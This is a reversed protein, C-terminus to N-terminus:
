AWDETDSMRFVLSSRRLAALVSSGKYAAGNSQRIETAELIKLVFRVFPGGETHGARREFADEFVKALERILLDFASGVLLPPGIGDRLIARTVMIEDDRLGNLLARVASRLKREQTRFRRTDWESEPSVEMLSFSGFGILADLIPKSAPEDFVKEARELAEILRQRQREEKVGTGANFAVASAYSFIAAHLEGLLAEAEIRLPLGVAQVAAAVDALNLPKKPQRSRVRKM